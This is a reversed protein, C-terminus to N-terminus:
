LSRVKENRLRRAVEWTIAQLQYAHEVEPNNIRIVTHAAHYAYVATNYQKQTMASNALLTDNFVVRRSHVDHTVFTSDANWINDWFALVKKGSVQSYDKNILIKFAKKINGYFTRVGLDLLEMYHSVTRFNQIAALAYLNNHEWDTNPSLVALAGAAQKISIGYESAWGFCTERVDAYWRLGGEIEEPLAANYFRVINAAQELALEEHFNM